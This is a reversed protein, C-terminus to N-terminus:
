NIVYVFVVENSKSELVWNKSEGAEGEIDLTFVPSDIEGIVSAIYITDSKTPKCVIQIVSDNIRVDDMYFSEWERSQFNLRVTQDSKNKIVYLKEYTEFGECAAMLIILSAAILIFLAKKM